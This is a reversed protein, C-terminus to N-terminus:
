PRLVSYVLFLTNDNLKELRQLQLHQNLEGDFLKVGSGFLLPEITLYIEDVRGAEMFQQYITSGGCIAVEDCGDAELRRLLEAPQESTTEVGEFSGVREPHTTYVIIRRGPLSRNIQAFTRAGMVMVGAGTTITTYLKSDERSTWDISTSSEERNIFGDVSIAAIMFTKMHQTQCLCVYSEIRSMVVIFM